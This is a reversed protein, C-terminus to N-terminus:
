KPGSLYCKVIFYGTYIVLPLSFPKKCVGLPRSYSSKKAWIVWVYTNNGATSSAISFLIRDRNQFILSIRNSICFCQKKSTSSWQIEFLNWSWFTLEAYSTSRFACLYFPVNKNRNRYLNLFFSGAGDGSGVWYCNKSFSCLLM